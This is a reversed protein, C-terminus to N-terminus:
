PGAPAGTSAFRQGFVGQGSGDQGQSIWTVVFTGTMDSAVSPLYQFGTTYTNVRFEPGLPVGPTSYRQGFVGLGSGDQLNSTWVVVFSGGGSSVSPYLQNSTTHTNVRFESGLPVGAQPWAARPGLAAVFFLAVLLPRRM